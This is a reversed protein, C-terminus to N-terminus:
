ARARGAAFASGLLELAADPASRPGALVVGEVLPRV